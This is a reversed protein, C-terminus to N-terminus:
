LFYRNEIVIHVTALHYYNLLIAVAISALILYYSLYQSVVMMLLWRRLEVIIIFHKYHINWIKVIVFFLSPIRLTRGFSRIDLNSEFTKVVKSALNLYM